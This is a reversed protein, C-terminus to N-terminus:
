LLNVNRFHVVRLEDSEPEVDVLAHIDVHEEFSDGLPLLSVLATANQTAELVVQLRAFVFWEVILNRTLIVRKFINFM